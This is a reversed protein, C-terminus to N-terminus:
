QIAEKNFLQYTGIILPIIAPTFDREGTVISLTIILLAIALTTLAKKM